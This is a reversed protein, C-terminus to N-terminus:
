RLRIVYPLSPQRLPDTQRDVGGGFNRNIRPARKTLWEHQVTARPELIEDVPELSPVADDSM